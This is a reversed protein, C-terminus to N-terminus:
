RWLRARRRLPVLIVTIPNRHWILVLESHFYDDVSPASRVQRPMTPRASTTSRRRSTPQSGGLRRHLAPAILGCAARLSSVSATRDVRGSRRIADILKDAIDSLAKDWSVREWKGSGRKGIRKMPYLAREQGYLMQSWMAGKQCGAPNMDPVGAEIPTFTGSQEERVVKGDRVFVHHPCTSPYCDVCHSGWAVSDWRWRQRYRDEAGNGNGRGNAKKPM